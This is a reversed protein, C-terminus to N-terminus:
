LFSFFKVDDPIQVYRINRAKIFFEDFRYELGNNGQVVADKLNVNM